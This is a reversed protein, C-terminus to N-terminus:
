GSLSSHSRPVAVFNFAQFPYQHARDYQELSLPEARELFGRPTFVRYDNEQVLHNFLESTSLGYLSLASSTSEFVIPPRDRRIFERSGRLVLLEAGEVDIKIFDIARESSVLEDLRVCPVTLDRTHGIRSVATRLGSYGSTELDIHFTVEGSSDGVAMQRVDVGPFKNALRNAKWPIPEFAMHRGRPALKVLLSLVSGLHCGVDICNSSERVLMRIVQDLREGEHYVDSLEPHKMRRPADILWRIRKAAGEFPTGILFSKLTDSNIM